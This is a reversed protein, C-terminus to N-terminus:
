GVACVRTGPTASNHRPTDWVGWCFINALTLAANHRQGATKYVTIFTV